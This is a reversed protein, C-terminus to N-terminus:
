KKSVNSTAECLKAFQKMLYDYARQCFSKESKENVMSKISNHKMFYGEPYPKMKPTHTSYKTRPLIYKVDTLKM